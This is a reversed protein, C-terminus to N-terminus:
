YNVGGSVQLGILGLDVGADSVVTDSFGVPVVSNTDLVFGSPNGTNSWYQGVFAIKGFGYTSKVCFCAFTGVELEGIAILDDRRQQFEDVPSLTRRDTDGYIFSGRALGYFGYRSEGFRKQTELAFTPGAGEFEATSTFGPAANGLRSDASFDVKAFRVGMSYLNTWAGAQQVTMAELDFTTLTFEEAARDATPDQPFLTPPAAAPDFSLEASDEFRFWRIRAGTQRRGLYGVWFVPAANGDFTFEDFTASPNPAVQTVTLRGLNESFRPKLFYAGGGAILGAREAPAAAAVLVPPQATAYGTDYPNWPQGNLPMTTVGAPPPSGIEAPPLPTTFTQACLVGPLALVCVAAFMSAHAHALKMASGVLELSAVPSKASALWGPRRMDIETRM